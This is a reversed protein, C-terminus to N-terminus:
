QASFPTPTPGLNTNNYITNNGRTFFSGGSMQFVTGNGFITSGDVVMEPTGGFNQFAIENGSITNRTSVVYLKSGQNVQWAFFAAHNATLEVDAVLADIRVSNASDAVAIGNHTNRISGGRVILRASMKPDLVIGDSFNRVTTDEVVLTGVSDALIANGSNGPGEIVLGRLTVVSDSGADIFIGNSALKTQTVFGNVGPPVIIGVSKSINLPGYGATDLVVIQGGAAVADHATQFSRKPATRAGSNADDGTSAVFIKPPADALAPTAFAGFALLAVAVLRIM